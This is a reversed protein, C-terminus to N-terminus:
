LTIIYRSGHARPRPTGALKRRKRFGAFRCSVKFLSQENLSLSCTQPPMSGPEDHEHGREEQVQGFLPPVAPFSLGGTKRNRMKVSSILSVCSRSYLGLREITRRCTDRTNNLNFCSIVVQHASGKSTAIRRFAGVTRSSTM